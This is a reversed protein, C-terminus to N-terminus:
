VTTNAIISRLSELRESASGDYRKGEMDLRIGGILAPNVYCTMDVKKGSIKELKQLLAQKQRESLEMASTVTAEVIGHDQNYRKRYEKVCGRFETIYGKDCLLKLFNLLYPWVRGGFAEELIKEREQKSISPEALLRLYEPNEKFVKQIESLESLEEDSQNEEAALEYFSGGYKRATETMM